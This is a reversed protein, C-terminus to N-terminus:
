SSLKGLTEVAARRVERDADGLRDLATVVEATYAEPLFGWQRVDEAPRKSLARARGVGGVDLNRRTRMVAQLANSLREDDNYFDATEKLASSELEPRLLGVIAERGERTAIGECELGHRLEGELNPVMDELMKKRKGIV